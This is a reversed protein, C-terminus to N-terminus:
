LGQADAVLQEGPELLGRRLLAGVLDPHDDDAAARGAHLHGTREGFQAVLREDAGVGLDFPAVDGDGEHM